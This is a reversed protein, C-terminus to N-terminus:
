IYKYMTKGIYCAITCVIKHSAFPSSGKYFWALCVFSLGSYLASCLEYSSKLTNDKHNLQPHIDVSDINLTVKIVQETFVIDYIPLYMPFYTVEFYTSSSVKAILFLCFCGLFLPFAFFLISPGMDLFVFSGGLLIFWLPFM